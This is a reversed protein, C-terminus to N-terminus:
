AERRGAEQARMRQLYELFFALFISLFVALVGAIVMNLAIRPRSKKDAPVASDLVQVTPTDRAEALKAQEAQSTLLTFLTEQVKLGRMLRAYQISLDPVTIMAPHLRDGPIMGKGDKGSELLYLQKKLEEISSRVRALDPNDPSLYTNMVELQVEQATIQGQITAAAEIMARSQAEVAVTKNRVEFDMLAEEARVLDAKVQTLRQEIFARNQSAKSVNLTRNLRDLNEVYFNAMEAARRPDEDEVSIEIVKEKTVKISTADELAARADQRTEAEYVAMLDFRGIVDDAMRRSKLMAAFVDTPTAPIGPLVIGLNQAASGGATAALLSGLGRGDGSELQPLLTATSEYIKPMLLSVVMTLVVAGVCLGGILRRRRWMVRWYDLLNVEDEYYPPQPPYAYPGQM